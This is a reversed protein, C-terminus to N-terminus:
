RIFINNQASICHNTIDQAIIDFLPVPLDHGMGAVLHLRANPLHKATDIGGQPPILPDETGHIVLAPALITNLQRIRNGNAVIAALQREVGGKNPFDRRVSETIFNKLTDDDPRHTKSAILQWFRIEYDIVAEMSSRDPPSFLYKAVERTAGPLGRKGSTSMISTLSITRDPYNAAVLQAIMGGMSAGVIHARPICLADLLAITDSAMDELSYPTSAPLWLKKLLVIRAVNAKGLHPMKSSQGIDRNDFRIVRFGTDTLLTCFQDPWGIRQTGLGQILIIVPHQKNGFEDYSLEITNTRIKATTFETM